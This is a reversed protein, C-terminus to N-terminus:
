HEKRKINQTILRMKDRDHACEVHWKSCKDMYATTVVLLLEIKLWQYEKNLVSTHMCINGDVVDATAIIPVNFPLTKGHFFAKFTQKVSVHEHHALNDTLSM